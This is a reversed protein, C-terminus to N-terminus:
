KNRKWGREKLAKQVSPLSLAYEIHPCSRKKDLDCFIYGPMDVYIDVIRDLLNDQVVIKNEITNLHEYPPPNYIRIEGDHISIMVRSKDALPFDPNKVLEAPVTILGSSKDVKFYGKKKTVM